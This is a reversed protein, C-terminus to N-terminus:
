NNDTTHNAHEPKWKEDYLSNIDLFKPIIKLM